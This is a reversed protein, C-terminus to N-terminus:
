LHAEYDLRGETLSASIEARHAVQQEEVRAWLEEEESSSANVDLSSRHGGPTLSRKSRGQVSPPRSPSAPLSSRGAPRAPGGFRAMLSNVSNTPGGLGQQYPGQKSMSASLRRKLSALRHRTTSRPESHYIDPHSDEFAFANYRYHELRSIEDGARALASETAERAEREQWVAHRLHRCQELLDRCETEKETQVRRLSSNHERRLNEELMERQM